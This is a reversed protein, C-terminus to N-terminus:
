LKSYLQSQCRNNNWKINEILIWTFNNWVAWSSHSWASFSIEIFPQKIVDMESWWFTKAEFLKLCGHWPIFCSIFFSFVIYFTLLVISLISQLCVIVSTLSYQRQAFCTVLYLHLWFSLKEQFIILTIILSLMSWVTSDKSWFVQKSWFGFNRGQKKVLIRRFSFRVSGSCVLNARKYFLIVLVKKFPWYPDFRITWSLYRSFIQM